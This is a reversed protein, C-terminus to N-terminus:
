EETDLIEDIDDDEQETIEGMSKEFAVNYNDKVKKEIEEMINSHEKLYTKANERGQGIKQGSYSFWAGSKDIIDM